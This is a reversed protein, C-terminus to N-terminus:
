GNYEGYGYPNAENLLKRHKYLSLTRLWADRFYDVEETKFVQKLKRTNKDVHDLYIIQYWNAPRGTQEELAIDYGACQYLHESYARYKGTYRKQYANYEKDPSGSKLDIIGYVGDILAPIDPKGCYDHVRSYIPAEMLDLLYEVNNEKEWKLFAEVRDLIVEPIDMDNGRIHQEIWDHALTGEDARKEKYSTHNTRALKLHEKTVSYISGDKCNEEIYECVMKASWLILSPKAIVGLPTTVGTKTGKYREPSVVKYTHRTTSERFEVTVVEGDPYVLDKATVKTTSTKGLKAM